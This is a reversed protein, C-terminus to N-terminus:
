VPNSQRRTWVEIRPIIAERIKKELNVLVFLCIFNALAQHLAALLCYLNPPVKRIITGVTDLQIGLTQCRGHIKVNLTTSDVHGTILTGGNNAFVGKGNAWLTFPSPTLNILHCDQCETCSFPSPGCTHHSQDLKTFSATISLPISQLYLKWWPM